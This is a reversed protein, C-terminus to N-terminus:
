QNSNKNVEWANIGGILNSAEIGYKKLLSIAKISRKGTQCHVYIRKNASMLKIKEIDKGDEINQLPVLTSGKISNAKYESKNRVDLIIINDQEQNILIKLDKASINKISSKTYGADKNCFEKYDILKKISTNNKNRSLKFERFKMKLANFVLLRGDLPDGTETIIKIAETAQILGIIGPLVGIVGSESCSPLLEQPPPEPILDRFNPSDKNLNFVTAQGEFKAIAGYINPKNLIISADNILYRSEFNDTCDCILDFPKLIELANKNTLYEEFIKVNCYPNIELIRNRASEVKLNGISKTSHIVQRQLNSEDVLDNDVICINGVGAAAIYMLLPSGLGGSGICVISSNKLKKQGKLGIEPLSIHRLYRSVEKESLDFQINKPNKM